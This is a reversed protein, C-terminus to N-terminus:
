GAARAVLAVLVALNKVDSHGDSLQIEGPRRSHNDSMDVADLARLIGVDAGNAVLAELDTRLNRGSRGASKLLARLLLRLLAAASAPSADSVSMAEVYLPMLSSPLDPTDPSISM